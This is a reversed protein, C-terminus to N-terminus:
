LAYTRNVDMLMNNDNGVALVYYEFIKWLNESLFKIYPGTQTTTNNRNTGISIWSM